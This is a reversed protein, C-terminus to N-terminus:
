YYRLAYNPYTVAAFWRLAVIEKKKLFFKSVAVTRMQLKMQNM